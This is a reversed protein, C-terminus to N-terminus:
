KTITFTVAPVARPALPRSYLMASRAASAATIRLAM